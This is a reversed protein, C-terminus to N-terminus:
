FLCRYKTVLIVNEPMLLFSFAYVQRCRYFFYVTMCERESTKDRKTYIDDKVVKDPVSNAYKDPLFPSQVLFIYVPPFLHAFTTTLLSLFESM